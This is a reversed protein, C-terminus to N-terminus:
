RTQFQNQMNQMDGAMEPHSDAFEAFEFVTVDPNQRLYDRVTEAAAVEEDDIEADNIAPMVAGAALLATFMTADDAQAAAVLEDFLAVHEQPIKGQEKAADYSKTLEQVMAEAGKDFAMNVLFYIAIVGLVGLVILVLCGIGIVKLWPTGGQQQRSM